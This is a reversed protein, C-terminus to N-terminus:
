TMQMCQVLEQTDPSYYLYFMRDALYFEMASLQGLFQMFKGNSDKPVTFGNQIPYALPGFYRGNPIGPASYVHEGIAVRWAVSEQSDLNEPAQPPEYDIDLSKIAM